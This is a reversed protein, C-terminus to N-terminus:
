EAEEDSALISVRGSVRKQGGRQSRLVVPSEESEGPDAAGKRRM